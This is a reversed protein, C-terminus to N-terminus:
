GCSRRWGSWVFSEAIIWIRIFGFHFSIQIDYAANEILLTICINNLNFGFTRLANIYHVINIFITWLNHINIFIFHMSDSFQHAACHQHMNNLINILIFHMSNSYQHVACYQHMKNLINILIFHMLNSYQHAACYQHINNLINIFILHM